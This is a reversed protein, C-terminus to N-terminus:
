SARTLRGVPWLSVALAYVALPALFGYLFVLVPAGEVRDLERRGVGGLAPCVLASSRCRSTVLVGSERADPCLSRAVALALFIPIDVFNAVRAGGRVVETFFRIVVLLTLSGLILWTPM